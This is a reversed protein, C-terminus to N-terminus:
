TKMDRIIEFFHNAEGFTDFGMQNVVIKECSKLREFPEYNKMNLFDRGSFNVFKMDELKVTEVMSLDGNYTAFKIAWDGANKSFKSNILEINPYTEEIFKHILLRKEPGDVLPNENLWIAKLNPVKDLIEKVLDFNEIKNGYFSLTMM